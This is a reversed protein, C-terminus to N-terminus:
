EPCNVCPEPGLPRRDRVSADSPAIGVYVAAMVLVMGAILVPTPSTGELLMSVVVTVVPLLVFQYAVSSAPWFRLVFLFIVFLVSSGLVILYGLAAWTRPQAPWPRPEGILLSLALLVSAGILLAIVNTTVPNSKPFWKMIVSAESAAAVAGLLALVSLVPVAEGVSGRFMVAIGAVAVIAGALPRWRFPEQGHAVAFGFTLLPTLAITV